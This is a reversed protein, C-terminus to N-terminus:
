ALAERRPFVAEFAKACNLLLGDDGPRGVLSMGVPLGQATYGCTTNLAPLGALNATVTCVDALYMRVPDDEQAGITYAATPATPTILLDCHTFLGAYEAKLQDRIRSARGYYADYFGSCLAYNGLLIRRKVETGFGESRTNKILEDYTDGKRSRYGFKVGDYRALNSSAEASSILYYASVAFRLGPLSVPRVRAGMRTFVSLGDEVADKVEQATGEGMFEAPVGVTMGSLPRAEGPLQLAQPLMSGDNEDPLAIAALVTECDAASKALVGIQDLSSAFAILGYRSVAGYTPKIGTVGCFASPQRISGGTDSGLAAVCLGAAVAAASGGSSGGPVRTPDWPNKVGGFYSTQSAGGMAFEDMNTKGLLVAGQEKLLRIVTADYPPVYDALMKSACTTRIGETSINDKVALPIGTLLTGKGAKLMGDARDAAALAEETCVTIYAGYQTDLRGIRELFYETLARASLTGEALLAHLESISRKWYEMM